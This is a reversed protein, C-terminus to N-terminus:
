AIWKLTTYVGAIVATATVVKYWNSSWWDPEKSVNVAIVDGHKIKGKYDKGAYARAQAISKAEKVDWTNKNLDHLIIYTPRPTLHVIVHPKNLFKSFKKSLIETFEDISYGEAKTRGILPLNIKGDPAITQKTDFKSKDVIKVELVDNPALIYDETASVPFCCISVLFCSILVLSISKKM